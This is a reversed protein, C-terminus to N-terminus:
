NKALDPCGINKGTVWGRVAKLLVKNGIAGRYIDIRTRNKKVRTADAVLTYPGDEPEKYVRIMNAAEMKQQVHLEAKKPSTVVTPKYIVTHTSVIPGYQGPTTTRVRVQKNLCKPAQKKFTRAVANVSRKVEFTEKKGLRSEPIAIRFEDATMPLSGCGSILMAFLAAIGISLTFNKKM